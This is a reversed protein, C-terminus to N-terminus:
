NSIAQAPNKKAARYSILSVNLVAILSLTIAAYIFVEWPLAIQYAFEALWGSAVWWVLPIAIALAISLLYLYPRHILLLISLVNAGLVKRIGIEKRRQETTFSVLGVLGLIAIIVSLSTLLKMIYSLQADQEYLQELEQDFISTELPTGHAFQKWIPGIAAIVEQATKHTYKIAVVRQDGWMPSDIHFFALPRIDQYLSQYHFDDVVGIVEAPPFEPYILKKGIAEEVTWGFLRATTKNIITTQEDYKRQETYARGALLRFQMADFFYPDIKIQSIPLRLNSGEATFIDEWSGRGPMDMAIAAKQVEALNSIQDRFSILQQDLHQAQNVVVINEQEFGLDKRQIYKLQKSIIFTSSLLALSIVFQGAVLVSRVGGDRIGTSRGAFLDHNNQSTLYWAPYLGALLGVVILFLLLAAIHQATAAFYPIVLTTQSQLLSVLGLYIPVAIIGAVLSMFVSEALFQFRLQANQVGISKKIGIEQARTSARATSLNVFNIIAISLILLSMIQLIRIIKINGISGLRNGEETSYLHLDTLRQFYFAWRGKDKIFEDYDMGMRDITAKVRPNLAQYIKNELQALDVPSNSKLKAYTAVQTWIWSWDFQKVATNTPMSLLFDFNFHMNTPLTATVGTVIIPKQEPGLLLTKGLAPEDGFYKRATKETIIVQNQGNLATELDGQLLDLPFFEFFNSDAALVDNEFFALLGQNPHEYRIQFNGPTNIRLVSKIEPFNDVLAEALPPPTSAMRGGEPDWIATQNIRYTQELEPFFSDYSLQHQTYTYLVICCALGIALGVLNIFAYSFHKAFYRYSIKAYNRILGPNLMTSTNQRRKLIGRRLFLLTQLTFKFRARGPSLHRLDQEFQERLDGEISELLEDPCFWRLFSLLFRPPDGQM